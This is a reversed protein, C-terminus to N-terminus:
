RHKQAGRLKICAGFFVHEYIKKAALEELNVIEM